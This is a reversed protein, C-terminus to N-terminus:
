TYLFNYKINAFSTQYTSPPMVVKHPSGLASTPCQPDRHSCSFQPLLEQMRGVSFNNKFGTMHCRTGVSAVIHIRPKRSRTQLTSHEWSWMVLLTWLDCYRVYLSWTVRQIWRFSSGNTVFISPDAADLAKWLVGQLILKLWNLIECSIEVLVRLIKTNNM